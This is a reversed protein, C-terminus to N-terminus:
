LTFFHWHTGIHQEKSMSALLTNKNMWALVLSLFITYSSNEISLSYSPFLFVHNFFLDEIALWKAYIYFSHFVFSFRPVKTNELITKHIIMFSHIINKYVFLYAKEKNLKENIRISENKHIVLLLVFLNFLLFRKLHWKFWKRCFSWNCVGIYKFKM